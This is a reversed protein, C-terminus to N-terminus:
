HLNQANLIIPGRATVPLNKHILTQGDKPIKTQFNIQYRTMLKKRFSLMTNSAKTNNHM